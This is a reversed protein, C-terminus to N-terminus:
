ATQKLWGVLSRVLEVAKTKTPQSVHQAAWSPALTLPM